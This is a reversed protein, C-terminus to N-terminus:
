AMVALMEFYLKLGDDAIADRFTVNFMMVFGSRDEPRFVAVSGIGPDGGNHGILSNGPIPDPSGFYQHMRDWGLARGYHVTELAM